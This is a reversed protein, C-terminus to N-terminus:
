RVTLKDKIQDFLSAGIGRVNTLDEIRKFPGNAQRYEVIRQAISPGIGPLTDLEEVTATNINIKGSPAPNPGVAASVSEGIKPVYVQEGDNVRKALNLRSVDADAAAGGAKALADAIRSGEPVSVLGPKVVAGSVHVVLMAPTPTPSPVPTVILIPQPEPRRLLLVIVGLAIFNLLTIFIYGRNKELWASM